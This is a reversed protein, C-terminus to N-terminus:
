YDTLNVTLYGDTRIEFGAGELNQTYMVLDGDEIQAAFVGNGDRGVKGNRAAVTFESSTGDTKKVDVNTYTFDEEVNIGNNSFSSVSVGQVGQIGQPLGFKFNTFGTAADKVASATAQSGPPLTEAEASMKDSMIAKRELEGFADEVAAIRNILSQLDDPVPLAGNSLSPEVYFSYIGSTFVQYVDKGESNVIGTKVQATISVGAVGKTALFGTPLYCSYMNGASPDDTKVPVDLMPVPDGVKVFEYTQENIRGFQATLAAETPKFVDSLVFLQSVLQSYQTYMETGDTKLQNNALWKILM